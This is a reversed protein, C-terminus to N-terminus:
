EITEYGLPELRVPIPTVPLVAEFSAEAPRMGPADIRIRHGGRGVMVTSHSGDLQVANPGCGPTSSGLWTITANPVLEGATDRVDFALPVNWNPVLELLLTASYRVRLSTQAELCERVAAVVITTNPHLPFSPADPELIDINPGHVFYTDAPIPQGQYTAVLKMGPLYDPCGDDDFYDNLTERLDWCGDKSDPVDDGDSDPGGFFSQATATAIVLLAIFM